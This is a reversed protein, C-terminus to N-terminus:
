DTESRVTWGSIQPSTTDLRPRRACKDGEAKPVPRAGPLDPLWGLGFILGLSAHSIAAATQEATQTADM